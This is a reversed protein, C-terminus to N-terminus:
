EGYSPESNFFERAGSAEDTDRRYNELDELIAPLAFAPFDLGRVPDFRQLARFLALSAVQQLDDLPEPWRRYRRALDRAFPLMHQLLEEMAQRDRGERARALLRREPAGWTVRRFINSVSRPDMGGASRM